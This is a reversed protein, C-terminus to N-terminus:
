LLIKKSTSLFTTNHILLSDEEIRVITYTPPEDISIYEKNSM